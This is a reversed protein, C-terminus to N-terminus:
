KMIPALRLQEAIQPASGSFWDGMANRQSCTMETKTVYRFSAGAGPCTMSDNPNLIDIEGFHPRFANRWFPTAYGYHTCCFALALRPPKKTFLEVSQAAVDAIREGVAPAAPDQEILTALKPCALCHLRESAIGREVLRQPYVGSAITSKTGLMLLESEPHSTLYASMQEVATEIIGIVPFPPQYYASLREWIISLTNCAILCQAPTFRRMDELVSQFLEEQAKPSPLDNYGWERSPYANVYIIDWKREGADPAFFHAAVDLGGLGSDCVVLPTM